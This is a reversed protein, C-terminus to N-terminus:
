PSTSWVFRRIRTVIVALCPTGMILIVHSFYCWLLLINYQNATTSITEQFPRVVKGHQKHLLSVFIFGVIGCQSISCKSFLKSLKTKPRDFRFSENTSLYNFTLIVIRYLRYRSKKEEFDYVYEKSIDFLLSSLM